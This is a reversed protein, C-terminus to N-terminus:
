QGHHSSKNMLEGGCVVVCTKAPLQSSSLKSSRLQVQQRQQSVSQQEQAEEAAASTKSSRSVAQKILGAQM